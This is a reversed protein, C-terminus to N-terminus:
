LTTVNCREIILLASRQCMNNSFYLVGAKPGRGQIRNRVPAGRTARSVEVVVDVETDVELVAEM